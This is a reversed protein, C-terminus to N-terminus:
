GNFCVWVLVDSIRIAWPRVILYREMFTKCRPKEKQLEKQLEGKYCVGLQEM